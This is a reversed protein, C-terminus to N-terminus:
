IHILSLTEVLFFTSSFRQRSFRPTVLRITEVLTDPELRAGSSRLESFFAGADGDALLELRMKKLEDKGPAAGHTALIGTEEFLERVACGLTETRDASVNRALPVTEDGPEVKGGAFALYGGLFNLETSRRVLFVELGPRQRYLILNATQRIM